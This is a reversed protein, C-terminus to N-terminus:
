RNSNWDRDPFIKRRGENSSGRLLRESHSTGGAGGDAAVQQIERPALPSKNSHPVIKLRTRHSARVKPTAMTISTRYHSVLPKRVRGRRHLEGRRPLHRGDTRGPRGSGLYCFLQADELLRGSARAASLFGGGQSGPARYYTLNPGRQCWCFHSRREAQQGTSDQRLAATGRRLTRDPSSVSARARKINTQAAALQIGLFQALPAALAKAPPKIEPTARAASRADHDPAPSPPCSIFSVGLTIEGAPEEGKFRM